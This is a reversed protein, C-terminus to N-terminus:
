TTLASHDVPCGTPFTGMQEVTFGGPYSKIRPMEYVHLPKRRPPLKAVVAARLKLGGNSLARALANPRDYRFAALLPEDMIARSFVDIAPALPRPYFSALLAKTADAVKRAGGDYAFHDREYDDMLKAFGLYDEPIGKIAMHKGLTRYYLVSARLEAATLKRWGYRDIWRQPVVVFTSLVYLMDDNSIDYSRHMQNIRRIAARGRDDDFGTTLPVELLLATDDYRKQTRNEFEATRHLLAGISPVAYTRFLAFSLAQNFDWPFELTTLDRYIRVFDVEPDLHANRSAKAM